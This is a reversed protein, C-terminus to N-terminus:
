RCRSSDQASKACGELKRASRRFVRLAPTPRVRGGRLRRLGSYNFANPGRPESLWTYWFVRGIRLRRRAAALRELASRLRAAQGRDTTGFGEPATAKGVSAPWSLETVWVPLRRDRFKGMVDRALRVLRVVNRPKGTYPHLAVVDFSGRGGARYVQRLATFSENPLGALVTTAGADEAHLARDAARLLAVYSRAFPQKTWYRTLNPENWVQWARVPTRPLEPHETWFSGAPGYRRVLTRLFAAYTAPSRPPSALEARREAAWPPSRHVVPLVLLRRRAASAVVADTHSFDTPVGGEDRFDAAREPPVDAFSAHPQVENWYFAARVSEVGSAAMRGWEGEFRSAGAGTLPGDAAVGLWGQPVSRAAAPAAPVLLLALLLALVPLRSPVLAM